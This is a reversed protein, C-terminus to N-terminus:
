DLRAVSEIQTAAFSHDGLRLEVTRGKKPLTDDALRLIGEREQWEGRLRVRVAKGLPVGWRQEFAQRMQAIETKWTDYGGQGTTSPLESARQRQEEAVRAAQAEAKWKAYGSDDATEAQFLALGATQSPPPTPPSPSEEPQQPAGSVAWLRPRTAATFLPLDNDSPKVADEEFCAECSM